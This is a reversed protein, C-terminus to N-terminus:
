ALWRRAISFPPASFRQRKKEDLFRTRGESNALRKLIPL